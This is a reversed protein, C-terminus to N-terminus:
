RIQLFWDFTLPSVLRGDSNRADYSGSLGFIIKIHPNLRLSCVCVRTRARACVCVCVCSDKLSKSPVPLLKLNIM